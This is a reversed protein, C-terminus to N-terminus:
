FLNGLTFQFKQLKDGPQRNIPFGLSFKLPGVPSIWTLAVGYSYRMGLMQPLTNQIIPGWVAGGDVFVSTRVSKEKSMGPMPFLWEASLAAMKNGGIALGTSDVPGLSNQDYGRVSGTGGAYYNKFFPLPKGGYGNGVGAQGNLMLTTNQSTPYFVQDRVIFKYYRLGNALPLGTEIVASQVSGETTNIASDRSDRSWGLTGRYSSTTDGFTNVYDYFRQPSTSTLGITTNEYGLGLTINADDAVPIGYRVGGGYTSSTYPALINTNTANVNRKYIDFGRSVGDDTYYPNTYSVSAVRNIKSTNVQTSLYNGTGFLNAQTIAATLILGEGNAVGAGVSFNGTSKEKVGVNVDVQDPSGQVAPTEINVESFFDLKDVRQKSKQAKETDFWAGELQRFERRIVEDNTKTNGSVNIRRVYVRQGPDLMFTFAVQHKKKDVEPIANINAFAYGDNGLREAIKKDSETLAKRSFVDGPKVSILKRMEEHPLIKEPGAVRVDSVTYKPGETINITIYVSEKDPSISVQTSDISFELYGSDLYYSRLTELDGSLKPKSYQDNSTAWSWFGPTGLKFLDLLEDESYVHNGIINIQRIKAAKGEVVNFTIAVRNRELPKVVTNVSVAYKGRAVYNSKLQKEAKELASKDFIRGQVLGIYKMNDRLQDKSFEKVGNIEIGAIAPRESVHVVLVGRAEELSVDKFFGTAFLAHIAADAKDDDMRDGVKVPLYSFVTGAETRQIGEIRIDKITFPEFAAASAAYLLPILIALIRSKM